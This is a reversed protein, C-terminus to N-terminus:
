DDEEKASMERAIALDDGDMGDIDHAADAAHPVDKRFLMTNLAM